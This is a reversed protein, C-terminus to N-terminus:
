IVLNPGLASPFREVIASVDFGLAKLAILAKTLFLSSKLGSAGTTKFDYRFFIKM